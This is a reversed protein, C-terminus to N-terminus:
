CNPKKFLIKKMMQKKELNKAEDALQDASNQYTVAQNYNFNNTSLMSAQQKSANAEENLKNIEAQNVQAVDSAMKLQSKAKKKEIKNIKKDVKEVLKENVLDAKQM